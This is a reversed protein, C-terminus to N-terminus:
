RGSGKMVTIQAVRQWRQGVSKRLDALKLATRLSMERFKKANDKMFALIEDQTAEDFGYDRFM